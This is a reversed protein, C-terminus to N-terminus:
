YFLVDVFLVWFNVGWPFAKKKSSEVSKFKAEESMSAVLRTNAEIMTGVNALMNVLVATDPHSQDPRLTLDLAVRDCPFVCQFDAKLQQVHHNAICVIDLYSMAPGYSSIVSLPASTTGSTGELSNVTPSPTKSPDSGPSTHSLSRKLVGKPRLTFLTTSGSAGNQANSNAKATIKDMLSMKRKKPQVSPVNVAATSGTPDLSM